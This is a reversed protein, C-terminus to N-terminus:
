RRGGLPSCQLLLRLPMVSLRGNRESLKKLCTSTDTVCFLTKLLSIEASLEFFVPRIASILDKRLDALRSFTLNKRNKNKKTKPNPHQHPIPILTQSTNEVRALGLLQLKKHL